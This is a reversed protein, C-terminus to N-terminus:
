EKIFNKAYELRHNDIIEEIEKLESESSGLVDRAVIMAEDYRRALILEEIDRCLLDQVGDIVVQEIEANTKKNKM